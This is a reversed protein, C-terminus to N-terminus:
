DARLFAICSLIMSFSGLALCIITLIMACPFMYKEIEGFSSQFKVGKSIVQYIAFASFFMWFLGFAPGRKPETRASFLMVLFVGPYLLFSVAIGTVGFLHFLEAYEAQGGSSLANSLDTVCFYLLLYGFFLLVGSILGFYVPMGDTEKLKM